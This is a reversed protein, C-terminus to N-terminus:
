RRPRHVGVLFDLRSWIVVTITVLLALLAAEFESV